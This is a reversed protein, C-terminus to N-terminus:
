LLLGEDLVYRRHCFARSLEEDHSIFLCGMGKEGQIEALLRIIEAQTLTDLMSTPEDLILVEPEPLLARAVALRQLEGGSLQSPYRRLVDAELGVRALMRERMAPPCALRHIRAPELLSRGLTWRPNFASEPHQQVLQVRRQQTRRASRPLSWFDVCGVRLTGADPPLVGSIIRALTTKGAGSLGGVGVIEGADLSLSAGTLVPRMRGGAGPLAKHLEKAELLM